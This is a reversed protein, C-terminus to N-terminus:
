QNVPENNWERVELAFDPCRFVCLNCSVCKEADQVEPYDNQGKTFVQKPCFAICLGCQKCRNQNLIIDPM